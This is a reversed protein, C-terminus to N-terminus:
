GGGLGTVDKAREVLEPRPLTGDLTIVTPDDFCLKAYASRARQLYNLPEPSREGARSCLRAYAIEPPTDLWIVAAPPTILNEMRSLWERSLGLTLGHASLCRSHRDWVVLEQGSADRRLRELDEALDLFLATVFAVADEAPVAADHEAQRQINLARYVRNGLIRRRSKIVAAAPADRVLEQALSTKGAGDIGIVAIHRTV